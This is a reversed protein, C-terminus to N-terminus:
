FMQQIKPGIKVENTLLEDQVAQDDLNRVKSGTVAVRASLTDAEDRLGEAQKRTDDAGQRIDDAEQLV